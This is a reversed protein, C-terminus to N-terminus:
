LQLVHTQVLHNDCSHHLQGVFTVPRPTVSGPPRCFLLLVLESSTRVRVKQLPPRVGVKCTCWTLFQAKLVVRIVCFWVTCNVCVCFLSFATHQM